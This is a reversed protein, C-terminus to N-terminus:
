ALIFYSKQRFLIQRVLFFLETSCFCATFVAADSCVVYALLSSSWLILIPIIYSQYVAICVCLLLFAVIM